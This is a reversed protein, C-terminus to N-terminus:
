LVYASGLSWKNWTLTIAEAQAVGDQAADDPVDERSVDDNVVEEPHKSGPHIDDNTGYEPPNPNAETPGDSKELFKKQWSSLM